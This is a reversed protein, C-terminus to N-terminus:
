RLLEDVFSPVIDTASGFRTEDFSGPTNSAELNLEVIKAGSQAAVQAFGAAPYVNGSTGVTVFLTCQQLAISIESMYFPEEGFWVIDPRLAGSRQCAQCQLAVSLDDTCPQIDSCYGCRSKLLEGHMHFVRQSGAREHLDDVNQTVLTVEGAYERELRALAEHASNAAVDASLLQQRRANYFRHVLTPDSAFAQPTAVEEIRHNEWLGDRGRFTQIGSEASIGAGTLVVISAM